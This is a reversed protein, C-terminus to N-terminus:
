WHLILQISTCLQTEVFVSSTAVNVDSAEWCYKYGAFNVGEIPNRANADYDQANSVAPWFIAILQLSQDWRERRLKLGLNSDNTKSRRNRWTFSNHLTCPHKEIIYIEDPFKISVSSPLELELCAVRAINYEDLIFIISVMTVMPLSHFWAAFCLWSVPIGTKVSSAYEQLWEKCFTKAKTKEHVITFINESGDHM